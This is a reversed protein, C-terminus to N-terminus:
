LRTIMFPRDSAITALYVPMVSGPDPIITTFKAFVDRLRQAQCGTTTTTGAAAVTEAATYMAMKQEKSRMDCTGIHTKEGIFEWEDVEHLKELDDSRIEYRDHHM